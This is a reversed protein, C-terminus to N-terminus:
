EEGKFFTLYVRGYKREDVKVLGEVSELFPKENEYIVLGDEKLVLNAKKLAKLGFDSAYPPDIYILDFKDATSTLYTQADLNSVKYEEEV